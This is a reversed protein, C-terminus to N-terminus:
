NAQSRIRPRLATGAWSGSSLPLTWSRSRAAGRWRPQALLFRMAWEGAELKSTMYATSKGNVGFVYEDDRPYRVEGDSPPVKVVTPPCFTQVRGIGRANCQAEGEDLTPMRIIRVRPRNRTRLHAAAAAAAAAHAALHADM